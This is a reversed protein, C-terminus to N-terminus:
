GCGGVDGLREDGPRLRVPPRRRFRRVVRLRPDEGHLAPRDSNTADDSGTDVVVIEDVHGSLSDLCRGLTREGNKVIIAVSVTM